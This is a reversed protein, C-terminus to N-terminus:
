QTPYLNQLIETKKNTGKLSKKPKFSRFARWFSDGQWTLKPGYLAQYLEDIEDQFAKSLYPKIGLINPCKLHPYFIGAWALLFTEAQKANHDHCAKKLHLRIQSSSDPKKFKVAIKKFLLYFLGVLLSANLSILCWVWIPLAQSSPDTILAAQPVLPIDAQDLPTNMAVEASAAEIIRAPLQTENLKDAKLDWWKITIEPLIIKGPKIAILAVKVQRVGVNANDNPENSIQPQDLYHKLDSSFHLPIAPIQSGLCGDAKLTLTWTIPEGVKVESPDASWEETLKVDNAAFWNNKQFPAPIPKIEVKEQGSSMRKYQTQINFFSHGGTMIRGEFVIPSIVLEGVHQPFIAYKREIVIYRKGNEGYEEYEADNGLKEIMADPDNVKIESLTAQAINVSSYLRITYILQTQEYATKKPSVETELFLTDDEKTKQPSNTVEITKPSSRYQGFQMSPLILKGERKGMLVLTWSIEQKILGNIITTKVGQNKSLIDFDTQLPTFDPQEQINQETSFVVSFSENSGVIVRSLNVFIDEASLAPSTFLILIVFLYNCFKFFLPSKLSYKSLFISPLGQLNKKFNEFFFTTKRM